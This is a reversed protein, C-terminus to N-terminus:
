HTNNTDRYLSVYLLTLNKFLERNRNADPNLGIRQMDEYAYKAARELDRHTSHPSEM